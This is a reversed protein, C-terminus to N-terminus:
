AGNTGDRHYGGPCQKQCPDGTQRGLRSLMIDLEPSKPWGRNRKGCVFWCGSPAPLGPSPPMGVTHPNEDGLM